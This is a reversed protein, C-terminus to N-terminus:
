GGSEVAVGVIERVAEAYRTLEEDTRKETVAVLVIGEDCDRVGGAGGSFLKAKKGSLFSRVPLGALIGKELMSRCLKEAPVPSKFAFERWFVGPFVEVGPIESLLSRLRSANRLCAEACRRLGVPGMSTLYLGATLACLSQNTCINSTAKERRIHQERTQLTLTFARNGRSDVTMGVLRGPIRRLLEKRAAMYGLYPGGGNLALGLEQAEGCAVDAGVSGPTAFLALSLPSAAVLLLAGKAHVPESLRGLDAMRGWFDPNPTLVAATKEDVAEILPEVSRIEELRGTSVEVIELDIGAAGTAIVERWNPHLEADVVIRERGTQRVALLVAEWAASAGDYLSANALPLGTLRAIMTQYEFLAQLVGQSIEPQYPTYSTYFEGRRLIERVVPPVYHDYAGAGLFCISNEANLNRAALAALKREVELQTSGPPLDFERCKLEDPIHSFLDDLSRLGLEKLVAEVQEPRLSVFPV